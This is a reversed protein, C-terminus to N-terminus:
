YIMEVKSPLTYRIVEVCDFYVKKQTRLPLNRPIKYNGRRLAGGALWLVIGAVLLGTGWTYIADGGTVACRWFLGQLNPNFMM